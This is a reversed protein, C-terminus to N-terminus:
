HGSPSVASSPADIPDAYRVAFTCAVCLARITSPSPVPYLGQMPRDTRAVGASSSLSPKASLIGTNM